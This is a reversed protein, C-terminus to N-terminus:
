VKAKLRSEYVKMKLAVLEAWVDDDGLAEKTYNVSVAGTENAFYVSLDVLKGHVETSWAVGGAIRIMPMVDERKITLEAM